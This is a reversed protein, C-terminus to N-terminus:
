DLYIPSAIKHPPPFDSISEIPFNEYTCGPINQLLFKETFYKKSFSHELPFGILGFSKPNQIERDSRSLDSKPNVEENTM